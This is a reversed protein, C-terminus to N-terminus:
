LSWGERYASSLLPEADPEGEARLERANWALPRGLRFAVTGLLVAETLAGAYAFDCSTRAGGKCAELWARLHAGHDVPLTQPRALEGFREEPLLAHRTYDAVLCGADGVFLVGNRAVGLGLEDLLTQPRQGGDYWTLALAPREGRAPFRYRVISWPPAGFPEAPPGEAEIREPADLELAWFALDLFHCGMDALAGGGFPWFRRWEGPVYAENYDHAAAPGLWLDWVLHEPIPMAPRPPGSAGYSERAFAHVERVPGITGARLLEVVRAYNQGSHIQIGMQTARGARAAAAAVARAEAVTHTLPKECYVHCGAELAAVTAVAHTHDPTAVVVADLSERELMRRWDRYRAAKPHEQAAADLYRADVDCLARVNEAALGALDEAGRNGVGIVGVDLREAPGPRRRSAAPLVLSTGACAALKLLSRRSAM